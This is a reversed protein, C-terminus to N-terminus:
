RDSKRKLFSGRKGLKADIEDTYQPFRERLAQAARTLDLFDRLQSTALRLGNLRNKFEAHAFKPDNSGDPLKHGEAFDRAGLYAIVREARVQPDEPEEESM